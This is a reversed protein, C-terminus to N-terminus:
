ESEEQSEESGTDDDKGLGVLSRRKSKRASKAAKRAAEIRAAEAAQDQQHKLQKPTKATSAGSRQARQEPKIKKFDIVLAGIITGYAVVMLFIFVPSSGIGGNIQNYALSIVVVAIGVVMLVWYVKRWKKFEATKPNPNYRGEPSAFFGGIGKKKEPPPTKGEAVALARAKEDQKRKKEEARKAMEKERRKRAARKEADTTPKKRVNVSSAAPAAPKASAASKRTQGQPGDGAYRQNTPNRQSM